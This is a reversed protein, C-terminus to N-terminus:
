KIARIKIVTGVPYEITASVAIDTIPEAAKGFFGNSSLGSANGYEVEAGAAGVPIFMGSANLLAASTYRASNVAIASTSYIFCRRGNVGFMIAGAAPSTNPTYVSIAIQSYNYDTGGPNKSRSISSVGTISIPITEVLEFEKVANTYAADYHEKLENTFDNTSLGKGEEADQKKTGIGDVYKKVTQFYTATINGTATLSITTAESYNDSSSYEVKVTQNVPVTYTFSAGSTEAVTIDTDTDNTVAYYPGCMDTLTVETGTATLKIASRALQADIIDTNSNVRTVDYRDDESDKSLNFNTTYTAPM